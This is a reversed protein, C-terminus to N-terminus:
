HRALTRALQAGADALFMEPLTMAAQASGAVETLSIAAAFASTDADPAIRGAVLAVPVGREAAFRAVEVPVKGATSSADYSGEGTVVLDADALVDALGILDAIAAAGPRIVAGWAQLAFGTGGAAGAGAAAADAAPVAANLLESWHTLTRELREIQGPDAGKQPAFVAASGTQGLLPNTVDTLVTVGGPPLPRLGTLDVTMARALDDATASLAVGDADLIRAGLARLVGAGGDTSASSGIGLVLRTVGSDLAAAIAQGFGDTTATMPRRDAGLLEIGCCLGLEVVATGDGLDVWGADVPEGHPGTVSVDEFEADAVAALFAAITGEGGDAMPMLVVDDEPRENLWGAALAGAVDHAAATGKLSDPAVVIQM